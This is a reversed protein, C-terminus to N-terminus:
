RVDRERVTNVDTDRLIFHVQLHSIPVTMTRLILVRRQGVKKHKNKQTCHPGECRLLLESCSLPNYLTKPLPKPFVQMLLEQLSGSGPSIPHTAEVHLKVGTNAM